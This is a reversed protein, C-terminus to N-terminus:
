TMEHLLTMPLSRMKASCSDDLDDCKIESNLKRDLGRQCVHFEGTAAVTYAARNATCFKKFDERDCIMRAAKDTAKGAKDDWMNAFVNKIENPDDQKGFWRKFTDGDKNSAAGLGAKVFDQWEKFANHIKEADKKQEDDKPDWNRWQFENDLANGYPYSSADARAVITSDSEVTNSSAADRQNIDIPNALVTLAASLLALVMGSRAIM